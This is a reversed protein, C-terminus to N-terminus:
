NGQLDKDIIQLDKEMRREKFFTKRETQEETHNKVNLDNVTENHTISDDQLRLESITKKTTIIKELNFSSSSIIFVLSCIQSSEVWMLFLRRTCFLDSSM